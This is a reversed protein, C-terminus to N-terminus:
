VVLEVEKRRVGLKRLHSNEKLCLVFEKLGNLSYGCRWMSLHELRSNVKLGEGVEMIGADGLAGNWVIDLRELTRNETLMRRLLRGVEERIGCYALGLREVGTNEIMGEVIYGLGVDGIGDNWGLQLEKLSVNKRLMEGFVPGNESDIRLNCDYLRVLVLWHNTCLAQLLCLLGDEGDQIKGNWSLDLKRIVSPNSKIMECVLHVGSGDINNNGLKVVLCGVSANSSDRNFGEGSCTVCKHLEKVVFGVSYSDLGCESFDVKFEGERGVCVCQLFYSVCLCDLPSLSLWHLDLGGDLLSAVFWCLSVDQAEYLCHFINMILVHQKWQTATSVHLENKSPRNEVILRM